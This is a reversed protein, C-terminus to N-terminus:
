RRAAPTRDDAIGGAPALPLTIVFLSGSVARNAAEIRGGMREILERAIALGLGKGPLADAEKGRYYPEFIREIEGPDIGPGSDAIAIRGRGNETLDLDVRVRGGAPTYKFANELLGMIVERLARRDARVSVPGDEIVFTIGHQEALATIGPMLEAFFARLDVTESSFGDLGADLLEDLRRCERDIADLLPRNTDEKDLRNHVLRALTRIVMVPNRLQHALRDYDSGHASPQDNPM